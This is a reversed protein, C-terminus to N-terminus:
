KLLFEVCGVTYQSGGIYNAILALVIILGLYGLFILAVFFIGKWVM